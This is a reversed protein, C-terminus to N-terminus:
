NLTCFIIYYYIINNMNVQILRGLLILLRKSHSTSQGILSFLSRFCGLGEKNLFFAQGPRNGDRIGPFLIMFVYMGINTVLKSFKIGPYLINRPISFMEWLFHHSYLEWLSSFLIM